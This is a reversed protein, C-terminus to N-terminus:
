KGCYRDIVQQAFVGTGAGGARDINETMEGGGAYMMGLSRLIEKTCTYYNDTIFKQLGAAWEQTKEHDAPLDRMAGLRTFYEMLEQGKDRMQQTTQGQTKNEFERYAATGGWKEKAQAAYNELKSNDFASFDMDCEGKEQLERAHAIVADLHKRQLELLRIQERLAERCDFVSSDLIKKIEGLPFRLERFLLITQLRRLAEDDYLRYGAETVRAPPLLGIADYHHLTRISVGTLKSVEKVTKM